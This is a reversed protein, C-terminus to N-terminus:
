LIAFFLSAQEATRHLPQRVRHYQEFQRHHLPQLRSLNGLREGEYSPSMLLHRNQNGYAGGHFKKLYLYPVLYTSNLEAQVNVEYLRHDPDYPYNPAVDILFLVRFYAQIAKEINDRDITSDMEGGTDIYKAIFFASPINNYYESLPYLISLGKNDEGKIVLCYGYIFQYTINKPEM